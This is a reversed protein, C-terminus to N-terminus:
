AGAVKSVGSVIGTLIVSGLRLLFPKDVQRV